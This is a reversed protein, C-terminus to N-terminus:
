GSPSSRSWHRAGPTKSALRSEGDVADAVATRGERRADDLVAQLRAQGDALAAALDTLAAAACKAVLVHRAVLRLTLSPMHDGDHAVRVARLAAREVLDWAGLASATEVAMRCGTWSLRPLDLLKQVSERTAPKAAVREAWWARFEAEAEEDDSLGLGDAGAAPENWFPTIVDSRVDALDEDDSYAWLPVGYEAEDDHESM